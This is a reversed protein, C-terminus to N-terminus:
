EEIRNRFAMHADRALDNQGYRELIIQYVPMEEVSSYASGLHRIVSSVILRVARDNPNHKVVEHFYGVFKQQDDTETLLYDVAGNYYIWAPHVPSVIEPISHIIEPDPSIKPIEKEEFLRKLIDNEVLTPDERSRQKLINQRRIWGLIGAYSMTLIARQQPHLNEKTLERSVEEFEESVDINFRNQAYKKQLNIQFHVPIGVSMEWEILEFVRNHPRLSILPQIWNENEQNKLSVFGRIGKQLPHLLGKPLHRKFPLPQKPDYRIELSDTPLDNFLVSEFGVDERYNYEDAQPLVTASQNYTIGRVHYHITDSDIPIFASISGDSNLSFQKGTFYDYENFNGVIRIWELYEEREFHAGDNFLMPVLLVNMNMSPQDYIMVPVSIGYHFVGRFTLRYLGPEQIQLQYSGDEKPFIDEYQKSFINQQVEPRITIVTKPITSGDVNLLKGQIITQSM